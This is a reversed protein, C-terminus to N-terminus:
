LSEGPRNGYLSIFERQLDFLRPPLSVSKTKREHLFYRARDIKFVPSHEACMPCNPERTHHSYGDIDLRCYVHDGPTSTTAYLCTFQPDIGLSSCAGSILNALAGTSSVSVVTLIKRCDNPLRKELWEKMDEDADGTEPYAPLCHCLVRTQPFLQALRLAIVLMSPNDVLIFLQEDNPLARFGKLSERAIWHVLRDVTDLDALCEALRLFHTTHAGSPLEFHGESLTLISRTRNHTVISRLDSHRIESEDDPKLGKWGTTGSQDRSLRLLPMDLCDLLGPDAIGEPITPLAPMVVLSQGKLRVVVTEWLVSPESVGPQTIARFLAPSVRVVYETASGHYDEATGSLAADIDEVSSLKDSLFVRETQSM